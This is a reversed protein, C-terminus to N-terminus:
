DSNEDAYIVWAISLQKINSACAIGQAKDKSKALAPLLLAALIAVVAIVILLEVLTFALANSLTGAPRRFIAGSRRVSHFIGPRSNCQSQCRNERERLSLAPTLPFTRPTVIKGRRRTPNM